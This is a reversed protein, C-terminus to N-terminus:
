IENVTGEKNSLDDLYNGAENYQKTELLYAVSALHNSVDHRWRRM